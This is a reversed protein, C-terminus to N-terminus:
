ANPEKIEAGEAILALLEARALLKLVQAQTRNPDDNWEALAYERGKPDVERLAAGLQDLLSGAEFTWLMGPPSVREVAGLLCWCVARRSNVEVEEGRADLAMAGQAWGKRVREAARAFIKSARKPRM